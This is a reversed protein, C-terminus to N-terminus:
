GAQNMISQFQDITEMNAPLWLGSEEDKQISVWKILALAEGMSLDKSSKVGCTFKLFKLREADKSVLGSLAINVDRVTKENVKEPLKEKQTKLWGIFNEPTFEMKKNTQKVEPKPEEQNAPLQKIEETKSELMFNDDLRSINDDTLLMNFETGANAYSKLHLASEMSLNPILSLVPYKKTNGPTNSTAFKVNLDFVVRNINHGAMRVMEDFVTTIQPIGTEIGSTSLEWVGYIGKFKLVIFRITLREKWTEIKVIEKKARDGYGKTVQIGNAKALEFQEDFVVSYQMTSDDYLRYDIGDFYAVLNGGKDRGEIRHNCVLSPLHNPFIIQIQNPKEGLTDHFQKAYSGTARFWDIARGPANPKKEEGIRLKGIISLGHSRSENNQKVIRGPTGSKVINM